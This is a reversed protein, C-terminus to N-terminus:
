NVEQSDEINTFTPMITRGENSYSYVVETIRCVCRVNYNNIVEVIDGINYDRKYQYQTRTNLEGDFTIVPKNYETLFHHGKQQMYEKEDTGEDFSAIQIFGERRDLGTATGVNLSPQRTEIVEGEENTSEIVPGLILASNKVNRTSKFYDCGLLTELKSSFIVPPNTNQSTTRDIGSYLEFIFGGLFDPKIRFGLNSRVCIDSVIEYLNFGRLEELYPTTASLVKEDTSEKFIFNSIRRDELDPSIISDEILSKILKYSTDFIYPEEWIIRRDLISELSRGTLVLQDGDAKANIQIDEVIMLTSNEMGESYLYSGKALLDDRIYNMPLYLEFSGYKGYEETWIYSFYSDIVNVSKQDSDLIYIIM